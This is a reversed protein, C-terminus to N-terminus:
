LLAEGWIHPHDGGLILLFLGERELSGRAAKRGGAFNTLTLAGMCPTGIARKM